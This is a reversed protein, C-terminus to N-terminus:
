TLWVSLCACHLLIESAGSFLLKATAKRCKFNLLSNLFSSTFTPSLLPCFRNQFNLQKTVTEPLSRHTIPVAHVDLNQQAHRKWGKWFAYIPSIIEKFQKLPNYFITWIKGLPRTKYKSYANPLTKILQYLNIETFIKTKM